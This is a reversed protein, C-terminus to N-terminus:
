ALMKSIFNSVTFKETRNAVLEAQTIEKKTFSNYLTVINDKEIMYYYNQTTQFHWSRTYINRSDGATVAIFEENIIKCLQKIIKIHRADEKYEKIYNNIELAMDTYKIIRLDPHNILWKYHSDLLNESKQIKYFLRDLQKNDQSNFTNEKFARNFLELHKDSKLTKLGNRIYYQIKYKSKVEEIFNKFGGCIIHSLYYNLYYSQLADKYLKDEHINNQFIKTIYHVNSNIIDQKHDSYLSEESVIIHHLSM